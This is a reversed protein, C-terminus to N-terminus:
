GSSLKLGEPAALFSRNAKAGQLAPIPGASPKAGHDHQRAGASSRGECLSGKASRLPANDTAQRRRNTNFYGGNDSAFVVLTRDALVRGVNEDINQGM